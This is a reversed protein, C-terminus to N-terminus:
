LVRCTRLRHAHEMLAAQLLSKVVRQKIDTLRASVYPSTAVQWGFYKLERSPAAHKNTNLRMGTREFTSATARQASAAQEASTAYLFFVTSATVGTVRFCLRCRESQAGWASHCWDCPLLPSM